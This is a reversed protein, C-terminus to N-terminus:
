WSGDSRSAGGEDVGGRLGELFHHTFVGHGGGWRVDEQSLQNVQGATFTVHGGASTEM